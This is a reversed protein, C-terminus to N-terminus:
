RLTSSWATIMRKKHPYTPALVPSSILTARTTANFLRTLPIEALKYLDVEVAKFHLTTGASTAVYVDDGVRVNHLNSFAAFVHADM